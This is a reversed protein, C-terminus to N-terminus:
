NLIVSFLGFVRAHGHMNTHALALTRTDIQSTARAKTRSFQAFARASGDIRALGGVWGGAAGKSAVGLCARGGRASATRVMHRRRASQLSLPRGGRAAHRANGPEGGGKTLTTRKEPEKKHEAEHSDHVCM